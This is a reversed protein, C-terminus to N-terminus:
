PGRWRRGGDNGLAVSKEMEKMLAYLDDQSPSFLGVTAM